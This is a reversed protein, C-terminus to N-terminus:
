KGFFSEVADFSELSDSACRAVSKNKAKAIVKEFKLVSGFVNELVQFNLINARVCDPLSGETLEPKM